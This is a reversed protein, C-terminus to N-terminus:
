SCSFINGGGVATFPIMIRNDPGIILRMIHPVVMGVFGIIGSVSVSLGSVMAGTFLIIKKLRDTNIGLHQATEEGLLMINLDRSHIYLIVIGFTIGPLVVAVQEWGASSFGGMTWFIIRNMEEKNFLLILSLASSLLSNLAIGSLIITTVSFKGKIRGLTYAAYTAALSGIFAFISVISFGAWSFRSKMIIGVAAGLAGGSSTGIIYPDSLPNKFLGQFAAGTVSLATGILAALIVRPLRISTIILIHSENIGEKVVNKLFPIYSILVKMTSSFPIDAAGLGTCFIIELMLAWIMFILLMNYMNRKGPYNM